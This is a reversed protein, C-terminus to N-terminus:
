KSPQTISWSISDCPSILSKAPVLKSVAVTTGNDNKPNWFWAQGEPSYRPWGLAPLGNEPDKAFAVYLDQWKASTAYELPTAPVDGYVAFTGFLLPTESTHYAGEWWRPSINPFSANNLYRFTTVNLQARLRFSDTM